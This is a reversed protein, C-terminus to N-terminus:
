IWITYELWYFWIKEKRSNSCPLLLSCLPTQYIDEGQGPLWL